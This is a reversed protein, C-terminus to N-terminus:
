GNVLKSPRTKTETQMSINIHNRKQKDIEKKHETHTVQEHELAHSINKKKKKEYDVALRDM